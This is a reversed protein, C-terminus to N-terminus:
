ELGLRDYWRTLYADLDTSADRLALFERAANRMLAVAEVRKASHLEWTDTLEGWIVYLGGPVEDPLHFGFLSHLDGSLWYVREDAEEGVLQTALERARAAVVPSLYPLQNM